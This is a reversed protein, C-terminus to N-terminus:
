YRRTLQSEMQDNSYELYVGLTSCIISPQYVVTRQVVVVLSIIANSSTVFLPVTKINCVVVFLVRTVQPPM